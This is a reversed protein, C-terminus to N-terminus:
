PMTCCCAIISANTSAKQSIPTTNRPISIKQRQQLIRLRHTWFAQPQFSFRHEEQLNGVVIQGITTLVLISIVFLVFQNQVLPFQEGESDMGTGREAERNAM